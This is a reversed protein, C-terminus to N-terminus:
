LQFAQVREQDLLGLKNSQIATVLSEIVRARSVGGTLCELGGNGGKFTGLISKGEGRSRGGSGGNDRRKRSSRVNDGHVVDISASVAVECLDGGGQSNIHGENIELISSIDSRGDTGVGLEDPHFGWGVGGQTQDIDLCNSLNGMLVIGLQHDIVGEHAGEELVWERQTSIDDDVRDGLVDVSM